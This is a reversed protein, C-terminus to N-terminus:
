PGARIKLKKLRSALTTPKVGLLDAAGGPGFVQGRTAELAAVLNDRELRRIEAEPLVARPAPTPSRREAAGPAKPPRPAGFTALVVHTASPPTTIVARELVNRLERVNGPWEYAELAALESPGLALPARQM